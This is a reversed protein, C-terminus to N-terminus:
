KSSKHKSNQRFRDM